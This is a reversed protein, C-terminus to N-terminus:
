SGHPEPKKRENIRALFAAVRSMTREAPRSARSEAPSLGAEKSEIM